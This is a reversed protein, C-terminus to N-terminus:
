HASLAMTAAGPAAHVPVQYTAMSTGDKLTITSAGSLQANFLLITGGAGTAAATAAYTGPGTDYVIVASGTGGTATVGALPAGGKTVQVIVQAATPSLGGKVTPTAAAIQALTGQDILPLTVPGTSPVDVLSWTSLVAGGGSTDQVLLWAPGPSVGPLDFKTGASGGYPATVVGGAGSGVINATGQYPTATKLDFSPSSVLAVSGKLDVGADAAGAGSSSTTGGGAGIDPPWCVGADTFRTCPKLMPYDPVSSCGLLLAACTGAFIPSARMTGPYAPCAPGAANAPDRRRGGRCDGVLHRPGRRAERSFLAKRWGQHCPGLAGVQLGLARIRLLTAMIRLLAATIRLLAATIRLLAAPMRRAAATIRLLAAPM